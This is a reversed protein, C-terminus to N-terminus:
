AALAYAEQQRQSHTGRWAARIGAWISLPITTVPFLFLGPHSWAERSFRNWFGQPDRQADETDVLSNVLKGFDSNKEMAGEIAAKVQPMNTIQRIEGPRLPRVVDAPLIMRNALLNKLLENGFEGAFSDNDMIQNIRDPPIAARVNGPGVPRIRRLVDRMLPEVGGNEGERMLINIDRMVATPNIKPEDQGRRFLGRRRRAQITWRSQLHRTIEKRVGKLTEDQIEGENQEFHEMSQRLEKNVYRTLSREIAEELRTAINEEQLGREEVLEQHTILNGREDFEAEVEEKRIGSLQERKADRKEEFHEETPIRDIRAIQLQGIQDQIKSQQQVNANIEAQIRQLAPNAIDIDPPAGMIGARPNGVTITPPEAALNARLVAEAGQMRTLETGFNNVQDLLLRAQPGLNARGPNRILQQLRNRIETLDQQTYQRKERANQKDAKSLETKKHAELIESEATLHMGQIDTLITLLEQKLQPDRLFRDIVANKNDSTMGAFDPLRSNRELATKVTTRLEDQQTQTMQDFGETELIPILGKLANEARRYRAQEAGARTKEGRANRNRTIGFKDILGRLNRGIERGNGQLEELAENWKGLGALRQAGELRRQDIADLAPAGRSRGELVVNQALGQLRARDGTSFEVTAGGEAM